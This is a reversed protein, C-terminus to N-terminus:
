QLKARKFGEGSNTPNFCLDNFKITECGNGKLGKEAIPLISVEPLRDVSDMM